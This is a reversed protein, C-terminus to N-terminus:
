ALIRMQSVELLQEVQKRTYPHLKIKDANALYWGRADWRGTIVRGAGWWDAVMERMYKEAMVVPETTGKDWTLLWYQWHHKARKQHYNWATAFAMTEAYKAKTGDANYFTYAYPKWESPLFKHWDHIVARWLSVGCKRCALYVFWKHRILYKLYALHRKM